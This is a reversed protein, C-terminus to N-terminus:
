GKTSNILKRKLDDFELQNISGTDLLSKLKSLQTPVDSTIERVSHISYDTPNVIRVRKEDNAFINLGSEGGDTLGLEGYAGSLHVAKSAWILVLIWVVVTSGLFVNLALIVWRNPHGNRFAVITPLLYVLLLVGLLLLLVFVTM